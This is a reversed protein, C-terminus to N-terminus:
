RQGEGAGDAQKRERRERAAQLSAQVDRRLQASANGASTARALAQEAAALDGSRLEAIALELWADGHDAREGTLARFLTRAEGWRKLVILSQGLTFRLAYDGAGLELARQLAQVAPEHAGLSNLKSGLAAFAGAHAPQLETVRQLLRVAEPVRGTDDYIRAEALLAQTNDPELALLADLEQLAAEAHGLGEQCAAVHLATEGVGAGRAREEDLLALAESWQRTEVLRGIRLMTPSERFARAELEWPDNWVPVDESGVASDAGGEVTEGAQRRALVLLQRFTRDAPDEACLKGLIELAEAPRDRQLAVRALGVWGGPYSSDLRAAERYAAEAADLEGLDLAYNGLRAHSPAYEDELALSREIAAKAGAADGLQARTVAERYPWKPQRPELRGAEEFCTVALTKLRESAYIMGLEAWATGARPESLVKARAEEIRAVVRADFSGLNAPLPPDLPADAGSCAGCLVTLLLARLSVPAMPASIM